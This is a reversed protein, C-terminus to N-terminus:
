AKQGKFVAPQDRVRRRTHSQLQRLLHLDATSALPLRCEQPWVRSLCHVPPQAFSLQKMLEITRSPFRRPFVQEGSGPPERVTNTWDPGNMSKDPDCVPQSTRGQKGARPLWSRRVSLPDASATVPATGQENGTDALAHSLRKPGHTSHRVWERLRNM